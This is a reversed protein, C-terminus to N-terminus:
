MRNIQLVETVACVFHVASPPVFQVACLTSCQIPTSQFTTGLGTDSLPRESYPSQTSGSLLLHYSMLTNFM